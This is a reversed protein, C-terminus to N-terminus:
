VGLRVTPAPEGRLEGEENLFKTVRLELIERYLEKLNSYEWNVNYDKHLERLLEVEVETPM